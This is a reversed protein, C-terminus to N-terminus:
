LTANLSKGPTFQSVFKSDKSPSNRSHKKPSPKTYPKSTYRSLQSKLFSNELLLQDNKSYILQNKTIVTQLDKSAEKAQEIADHYGQLKRSVLLEKLQLERNRAFYHEEKLRFNQLAEEHSKENEQQLILLNEEKIKFSENDELLKRRGIGLEEEKRQMEEQIVKIESLKVSLTKNIENERIRFEQELALEKEAGKQEIDKVIAEYHERIEQIKKDKEVIEQQLDKIIKTSEEELLRYDEIVYILSTNKKPDIIELNYYTLCTPCKLLSDSSQKHVCSECFSHGCPLVLPSNFEESCFKCTFHRKDIKM